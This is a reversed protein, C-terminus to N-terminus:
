FSHRWGGPELPEGGLTREGSRETCRGIPLPAALGAAEFAAVLNSPDSTALVLEYDEGGYLADELTAGPEVPVEDLAIGVGSAGGVHGVDAALGDSVDIAATAGARRAVEGEAIRARPRVFKAELEGPELKGPGQGRSRVQRLGAAAGGVPGTVFLTDGPRAGSRLLAPPDPGGELAGAAAVSVVLVPAASLDGGVIRCGSEAAAEALGAGVAELECGPPAAVSVVAYRPRAGMAALDSLSVMLSKYGVDEPVALAPDFHVGEVLLDTTLLVPGEGLLVVAADDGIWTEGSQPGTGGAAEFGLRLREILDFEDLSGPSGRHTPDSNPREV